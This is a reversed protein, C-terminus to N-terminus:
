TSRSAMSRGTRSRRTTPSRFRGPTRSTPIATSSRRGAGAEPRAAGPHVGHGPQLGPGQEAGVSAVLRQSNPHLPGNSIDENWPNDPPFVQLARWSRSGGRAHQVDRAAHDRADAASGTQRPAQAAAVHTARPRHDPQGRPASGLDDGIRTRLTNGGVVIEHGAERDITIIFRCRRSPPSLGIPGDLLRRGHNGNRTAFEQGGAHRQCGCRCQRAGLRGSRTGDVHM